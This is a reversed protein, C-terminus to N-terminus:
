TQRSFINVPVIGRDISICDLPIDAAQVHRRDSSVRVCTHVISTAPKARMLMKAHTGGTSTDRIYFVVLEGAKNQVFIAPRGAIWAANM